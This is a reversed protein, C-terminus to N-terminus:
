PMREMLDAWVEDMRRDLDDPSGDNVIIIDALARRQADTAQVAIRARVEAADMGRTAALREIRNAESAEVTIRVDLGSGGGVEVLLPIDLVVVRGTDRLEEVQAAISEMVVPHIIANLDTRADDDDFVLNALAARDLSGDPLVVEDGFRELIRRFTATGPQQERRVIEDADIVTAGRAAL